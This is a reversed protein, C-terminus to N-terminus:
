NNTYDLNNKGNSKNYLYWICTAIILPITPYNYRPSVFIICHLAIIGCIPLCLACIENMNNKKYIINYIGKFCIFIYGLIFMLYIWNSCSSWAWLLPPVNGRLINEPNNNLTAIYDLYFANNNGFVTSNKRFILNLVTTYDYSNLNELAENFLIKQVNEVPNEQIVKTLFDAAEQSWEGWNAKHLGLYIPWGISPKSVTGILNSIYISFGVSTIFYAILIILINLIKDKVLMVKKSSTEFLFYSIILGILFISTIGRIEQSIRLLIGSSLLGFYRKVKIKDHSYLFISIGAFLFCMYMPESLMYLSSLINNPWIAFIFSTILSFTSNMIKNCILYLLIVNITSFFINLYLASKVSEGLFHYGFSFITAIITQNTAVTALQIRGSEFISFKEFLSQSYLWYSEYDSIQACEVNQILIFRPIVTVLILILIVSKISINYKSDLRYQINLIIKSFILILISLIILYFIVNFRSRNTLIYHETILASLMFFGAWLLIIIKFVRSIKEKIIM